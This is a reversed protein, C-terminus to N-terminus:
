FELQERLKAAQRWLERIEADTPGGAFPLTSTEGDQVYVPVLKFLVALAKRRLALPDHPTKTPM